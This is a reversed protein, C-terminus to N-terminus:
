KPTLHQTIGYIPTIISIAIFGVLIGMFILLMPEVTTSLNKTLEDMEDEYIDALYLLTDSLKGTSEGVSMMQSVMLPFLKTDRSIQTSIKEGKSLQDAMNNLEKKYVLNITTDSTIQFARVIGSGSNLLLGITRCINTTNYTQILKRIMPLYFLTKDYWFHFNEIKLLLMFFIIFAMVILLALIGHSGLFESAFILFKTTWPLQYNVSKFVPIIKPFVFVTLMITMLLTAIVIFTPYISASIVKQRLAQKKKLTTALYDLNSSLTGSIEGIAIINITLDGFIKKFKGLTTALYRGNEVDKIVQDMIINMTRSTSQKKLMQLASFIPVGARILIALQKIFLIQDKLSLRLFSKKMKDNLVARKFLNTKWETVKKAAFNLADTEKLWDTKLKAKLSSIKSKTNLFFKNM